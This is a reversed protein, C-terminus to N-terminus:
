GTNQRHEESNMTTLSILATPNVEHIEVERGEERQQLSAQYFLLLLSHSPNDHPPNVKFCSHTMGIKGMKDRHQNSVSILHSFKLSNM